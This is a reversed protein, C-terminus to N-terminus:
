SNTSHTSDNTGLPPDEVRTEELLKICNVACDFDWSISFNYIKPDLIFDLIENRHSSCKMCYAALLFICNHRLPNPDEEDGEYIVDEDDIEINKNMISNVCEFFDENMCRRLELALLNDYDAILLAQVGQLLQVRNHVQVNKLINTLSMYMLTLGSKLLCHMEDVRIDDREVFKYRLLVDLYVLVVKLFNICELLEEKRRLKGVCDSLNAILYRKIERNMETFIEVHSMNRTNIASPSRIVLEFESFLISKEISSFLLYRVDDTEPCENSSRMLEVNETTILRLFIERVNSVELSMIQGEMLWCFYKKREDASSCKNFFKYLICNLTVLSSDTVPMGKESYLKILPQVDEYKLDVSTLM